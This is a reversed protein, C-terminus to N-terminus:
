NKNGTLPNAPPMMFLLANIVQPNRATMTTMKQNRKIRGCLFRWCSWACNAALRFVPSLIMVQDPIYPSM